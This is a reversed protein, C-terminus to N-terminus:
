ALEVRSVDLDAVGALVALKGVDAPDGALELVDRERREIAGGALEARAALLEQQREEVIAQLVLELLLVAHVRAVARERPGRSSPNQDHRGPALDDLLEDRVRRM